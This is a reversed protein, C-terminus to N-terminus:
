AAKKEAKGPLHYGNQVFVSDFGFIERTDYLNAYAMVLCDVFSVRKDQPVRVTKLLELSADIIDLDSQVLLIDRTTHRALLAKGALFAQQRGINNGIRNLTEALVESPLIAQRDTRAIFGATEDATEHWLDNLNIQAILASSDLIVTPNSM